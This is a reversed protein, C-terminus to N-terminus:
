RNDVNMQTDAPNDRQEVVHRLTVSFTGHLEKPGYDLFALPRRCLQTLCPVVLRYAVPVM